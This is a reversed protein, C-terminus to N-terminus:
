REDSRDWLICLSGEVDDHRISGGRVEVSIEVGDFRRATFEHSFTEGPDPSCLREVVAEDDTSDVLVCPSSDLLDERACNFIDALRENVYVLQEDQVIFVGAIDQEVLHQYWSLADWFQQQTRYRDVANLVRNALVEYQEAGVEKQMYDTVGAEIADSAVEESGKGTFLIFPIDPFEERVLELFEIGNTNPMDYDSIICDFPRERLTDLAAVVSTETTVALDDNIDELYTKTVEVIEPHDDVHLVHIQEDAKKDTLAVPIELCEEEVADSLQGRLLPPQTGAARQSNSLVSRSISVVDHKGANSRHDEM